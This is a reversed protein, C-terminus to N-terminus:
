GGDGEIVRRRRLPAAFWLVSFPVGGLVATFAGAGVGFLKTTVFLLCGCMALALCVLGAITLRNAVFLLQPKDDRRFLFRHQAAPAIVFAAALSALILTVFYVIREFQGVHSFGTDFPVVLLFAFLVQVGTVVVRMEGTLEALNRDVRELPTEERGDDVREGSPASSDAQPAESSEIAGDRM